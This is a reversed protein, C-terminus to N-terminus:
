SPPLGKAKQALASIGNHFPREGQGPCSGCVECTSREQAIGAARRRREPWRGSSSSSSQLDPAEIASNNGQCATFRLQGDRRRTDQLPVRLAGLRGAGRAGDRITGTAQRFHRYALRIRLVPVRRGVALWFCKGASSTPGGMPEQALFVALVHPSPSLDPPAESSPRQSPGGLHCGRQAEGCTSSCTRWATSAARGTGSRHSGSGSGRPGASGRSSGHPRPGGARGSGATCSGSGANTRESPSRGREAGEWCPLLRQWSGGAEREKAEQLLVHEIM